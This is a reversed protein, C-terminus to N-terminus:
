TISESYDKALQESYTYTRKDYRLVAIGRSSLGWALDRFLSQSGVTENRNQPGSGGVLIIVPVNDTKDQFYSLTGGLEWQTGTGIKLEAEKVGSPPQPSDTYLVFDSNVGSIKKDSNFVVNITISGKEFLCNVSIVDYEDKKSAVTSTIKSFAGYQTICYEWLDKVKEPTMKSKMVDDFNKTAEEYNGKSSSIVFDKAYADITNSPSCACLSLVILIVSLVIAAKKM